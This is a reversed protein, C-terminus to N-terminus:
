FDGRLMAATLMANEDLPLIVGPDKSLSKELDSLRYYTPPAVPFFGGLRLLSMKGTAKIKGSLYYRKYQQNYYDSPLNEVIWDLAEKESYIPINAM